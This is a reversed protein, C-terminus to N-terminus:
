LIGNNFTWNPRIDWSLALASISIIIDLRRETSTCIACCIIRACMCTYRCIIIIYEKWKITIPMQTFIQTWTTLINSHLRPLFSNLSLCASNAKPLTCRKVIGPQISKKQHHYPPIRLKNPSIFLLIRYSHNVTISYGSLRNVHM